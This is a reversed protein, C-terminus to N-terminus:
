IMRLPYSHFRKNKFAFVFERQPIEGGNVALLLDEAGMIHADLQMRHPDASRIHMVIGVPPNPREHDTFRHDEAVLRGARDDFHSGGDRRPRAMIYVTRRVRRM